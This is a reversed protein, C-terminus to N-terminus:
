IREYDKNLLDQYDEGLKNQLETKVKDCTYWASRKTIGIENEIDQYSMDSLAYLKFLEKKYPYKDPSDLEMLAKNLKYTLEFFADEYGNLFAEEATTVLNYEDLDCFVHREKRKMDLFISRLTLWVGTTSVKGEKVVKPLHGGDHLKLYMDQVIDECLQHEGFSRVILIWEEHRQALTELM